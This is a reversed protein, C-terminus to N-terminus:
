RNTVAWGGDLDVKYGSVSCTAVGVDADLDLLYGSRPCFMWDKSASPKPPPPESSGMTTAAHSPVCRLGSPRLYLAFTHLSPHQATVLCQPLESTLM